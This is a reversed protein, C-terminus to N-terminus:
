FMLRIGASGIHSDTLGSLYDYNLSLGLNKHLEVLGGLSVRYVAGHDSRDDGSACGVQEPPTEEKGCNVDTNKKGGMYGGDYGIGVGVYPVLAFDSGKELAFREIEYTVGITAALYNFNDGDTAAVGGIDEVSGEAYNLKVNLGVGSSHNWGLTASGEDNADLGWDVNAGTRYKADMGDDATGFTYSAQIYGGEAANGSVPLLLCLSFAALVFKRM